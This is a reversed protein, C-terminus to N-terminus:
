FENYTNVIERLILHLMGSGATRRRKVRPQEDDSDSDSSSAPDDDDHSPPAVQGSGGNALDADTQPDQTPLSPNLLVDSPVGTSEASAIGSTTAGPILM